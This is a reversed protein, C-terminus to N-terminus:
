FNFVTLKLMIALPIVETACLYSFLHLNLVSAKKNVTSFVRMITIILVFSVALNSVLLITEPIVNYLALYLLMVVPLFIGLFLM